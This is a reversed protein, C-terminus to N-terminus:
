RLHAFMLSCFHVINQKTKIASSCATPCRTNKRHNLFASERKMVDIGPQSCIGTTQEGSSAAIKIMEDESEITPFTKRLDDYLSNRDGNREKASSSLSEESEAERKPNEEESVVDTGAGFFLALLIIIIIIVVIRM